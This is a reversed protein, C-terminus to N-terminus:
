KLSLLYAVLAELEEQSIRVNTRLLNAMLGAPYDRSLGNKISATYADPNLISERIDDEASYKPRRQAATTSINTLPPGAIGTSLGNITHCTSCRGPGTFM